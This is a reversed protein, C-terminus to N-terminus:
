LIALIDSIMVFKMKEGEIDIEQTDPSYKAFVIVDGERLTVAGGEYAIPLQKVVGKYLFNDQVDVTQFGEKKEQEIKSVLVRSGIIIM